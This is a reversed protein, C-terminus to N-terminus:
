PSDDHPLGTQGGIPCSRRADTWIGDIECKRDRLMQTEPISGRRQADSLRRDTASDAHEFVLKPNRQELTTAAANTEGVGTRLIQLAHAFCKPLSCASVGAAIFARSSFRTTPYRRRTM